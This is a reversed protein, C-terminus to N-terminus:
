LDTLILSVYDSLEPLVDNSSKITQVATEIVEKPIPTIVLGKYVAKSINILKQEEFLIKNLGKLPQSKLFWKNDRRAARFIHDFTPWMKMKNVQSRFGSVESQDVIDNALSSDLGQELMRSCYEEVKPTVSLGLGAGGRLAGEEGASAAGDDARVMNVDQEGSM